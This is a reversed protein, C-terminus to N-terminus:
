DKDEDYSLEDLYKYLFGHEENGAEDKESYIAKDDVILVNKFDVQTLDVNEDELTGFKLTERDSSNEYLSDAWSTKGVARIKLRGDEIRYFREEESNRSDYYTKREFGNNQNMLQQRVKKTLRPIM